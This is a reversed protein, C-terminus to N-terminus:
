LCLNGIAIVTDVSMIIEEYDYSLITTYVFTCFFITVVITM